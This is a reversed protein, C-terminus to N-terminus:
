APEECEKITVNSSFKNALYLQSKLVIRDKDKKDSYQIVM